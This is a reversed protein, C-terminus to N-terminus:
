RGPSNAPAGGADPGPWLRRMVTGWWGQGAAPAAGGKRKLRVTGSAQIWNTATEDWVRCYWLLSTAEGVMIGNALDPYYESLNCKFPRGPGIDVPGISHAPLLPDRVSERKGGHAVLERGAFLGWDLRVWRSFRPDDVLVVHATPNEISLVLQANTDVQVSVRVSNPRCGPACSAIAVVALWSIMSSRALAKDGSILKAFPRGMVMLDGLLKLDRWCGVAAGAMRPPQVSEVVPPTSNGTQRVGDNAAAIRQRL